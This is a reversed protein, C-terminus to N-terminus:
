KANAGFREVTDINVGAAFCSGFQLYGLSIIDLSARADFGTPPFDRKTRARAAAAIRTHSTDRPRSFFARSLETDRYQIEVRRARTRIVSARGSPRECACAIVSRLRRPPLLSNVRPLMTMINTNDHRRGHEHRIRNASVLVCTRIIRARTRPRAIRPEM